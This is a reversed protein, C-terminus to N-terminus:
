QVLITGAGLYRPYSDKGLSYSVVDNISNECPFHSRLFVKVVFASVMMNYPYSLIQVKPAGTGSIHIMKTWSARAVCVLIRLISDALQLVTEGIRRRSILKIELNLCTVDYV